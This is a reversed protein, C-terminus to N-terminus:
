KQIKKVVEPNLGTHSRTVENRGTCLKHAEADVKIQIVDDGNRHLFKLIQEQYEIGPGELGGGALDFEL